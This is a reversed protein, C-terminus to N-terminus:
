TGKFVRASGPGQSEGTWYGILVVGDPQQLAILKTEQLHLTLTPSLTLLFRFSGKITSGSQVRTWRERMIQRDGPSMLSLLRDTDPITSLQQTLVNPSRDDWTLHGSRPDLYWSVTLFTKPSHRLFYIFILLLATGSLYCQALLLPEGPKLGPIFLPGNRQWSYYIVIICFSLFAAAGLQNGSVVPIAIMVMVPICALSFMFAEGRPGGIPQHFVYVASLCLLLWLVGGALWHRRIDAAPRWFLGMVISTVLLTGVVNASWWIWLTQIFDVEHRLVVWGGGLAAAVASIFLTAALWVGLSHLTDHPRTFHRVCWAIALDNSLSIVSHVLSTELSHRLTVDLGTRVIFLGLFLWPWRRRSTLLFASVALGAPFWVFSVQSAPDDLFLSIYGLAFYLACWVLLQMVFKFSNM